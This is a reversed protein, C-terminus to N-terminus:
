ESGPLWLKGGGTAAASQPTWIADPEDGTGVPSADPESGSDVGPSRAMGLAAVLRQLRSEVEPESLHRMRIEDFLEATKETINRKIRLELEAVLWLGLPQGKAHAIKRAQRILNLSTEDDNALNALVNCVNEMPVMEELSPRNLMEDGMARALPWNAAAIAQFFNVALVDDTALEWRVRLRKLPTVWADTLNRPDLRAPPAQGLKERLKEILARDIGELHDSLELHGLM